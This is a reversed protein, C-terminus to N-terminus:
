PWEAASHLISCLSLSSAPPGSLFQPLSGASLHLAPSSTPFCFFRNSLYKPAAYGRSAEWEINSSETERCKSNRRGPNIKGPGKVFCTEEWEKSCAAEEPPDAQSSWGFSM